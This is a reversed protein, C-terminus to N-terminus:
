SRKAPALSSLSASPHSLLLRQLRSLHSTTKQRTQHMLQAVDDPVPRMKTRRLFRDGGRFCRCKRMQCTSLSADSSNSSVAMRPRFTRPDVKQRRRSSTGGLSCALARPTKRSSFPVVELASITSTARMTMKQRETKAGILNKRPPKLNRPM